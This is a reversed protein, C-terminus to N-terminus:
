SDRQHTTIAVFVVADNGFFFFLAPVADVLNEEAHFKRSTVDVTRTDEGGDETQTCPRYPTGSLIVDTWV